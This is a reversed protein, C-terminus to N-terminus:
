HYLGNIPKYIGNDLVSKNEHQDKISIVTILGTRRFEALASTKPSIKKEPKQTRKM